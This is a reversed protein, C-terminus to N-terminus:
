TTPPPPAPVGGVTGGILPSPQGPGAGQGFLLQKSQQKEAEEMELRQYELLPPVIILAVSSAIIWTGSRLISYAKRVFRGSFNWYKDPVMETLGVIREMITEDVFEEEDNDSDSGIGIDPTTNGSGKGEDAMKAGFSCTIRWTHKASGLTHISKTAVAAPWSKIATSRIEHTRLCCSVNRLLSESSCEVEAETCHLRRKQAHM